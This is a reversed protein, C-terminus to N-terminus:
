QGCAAGQIIGKCFGGGQYFPSFFFYPFDRQKFGDLLFTGSIVAYGAPKEKFFEEMVREQVWEYNAGGIGHIFLGMKYLRLFMTLTLARPFVKARSFDAPTIDKKFCRIRKGEKVIWFPLEGEELKPFPYNKYRFRFSKKYEDLASNFIGRFREGEQYIKRFFEKFEEGRTLDSLFCFDEDMGYFRLFSLALTEKLPRSSNRLFIEKFRLFPSLSSKGLYSEIESFFKDTEGKKLAPYDALVMDSNLLTVTKPAEGVGPVKVELRIRDTDVFVIKKKAAPLNQLFLFKLSIGPNFFYPQHATGVVTEENIQNLIKEREPLFIVEGNNQPPKLLRKKM